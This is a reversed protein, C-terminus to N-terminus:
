VKRIMGTKEWLSYRGSTNIFTEYKNSLMLKLYLNKHHNTVNHFQYGKNNTYRENYRQKFTM